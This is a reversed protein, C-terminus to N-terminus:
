YFVTSGNIVSLKEGDLGRIVLVLIGFGAINLDLRWGRSFDVNVGEGGRCSVSARAWMWNMGTQGHGTM